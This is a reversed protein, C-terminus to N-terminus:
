RTDGSWVFTAKEAAIAGPCRRIRSRGNGRVAPQRSRLARRALRCPEHQYNRRSLPAVRRLNRVVGRPVSSRVYILVRLSAKCTSTAPNARDGRSCMGFFKVCERLSNRGRWGPSSTGSGPRWRHLLRLEPESPAALAFAVAARLLRARNRLAHISPSDSSVSRSISRLSSSSVGRTELTCRWADSGTRNPQQLPM